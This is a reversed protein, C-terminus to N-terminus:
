AVGDRASLFDNGSGGTFTDVGAGGYIRDSGAHGALLDNGSEGYLRDRGSGGGLTDKGTGGHLNDDGGAGAILDDGADGNLIDDAVGGIHTDDGDGGLLTARGEIIQVTIRNDLENGVVVAEGANFVADELGLYNRMDVEIPDTEVNVYLGDRGTGADLFQPLHNDQSTSIRDDGAGAYITEEAREVVEFTDNGDGGHCVAESEYAGFYSDNGGRGYFYRPSGFHGVTSFTDMDETGGFAEIFYGIRDTENLSESRATSFGDIEVPDEIAFEGNTESIKFDFAFGNTRSAYDATDFGEGGALFDDGAGGDLVDDGAAGDLSDNERGGTLTDNGDGGLITSVRPATIVVRDNGDGANVKIRRVSSADFSLTDGDCVANAMGDNTFTVTIENNSADGVVYLTGTGSLSAFSAGNLYARRELPEFLALLLERASRTCTNNM